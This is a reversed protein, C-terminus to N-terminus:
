SQSWIRSTEEMESLKVDNREACKKGKKAQQCEPSNEQEEWEKWDRKKSGEDLIKGNEFCSMLGGIGHMRARRKWQGKSSIVLCGGAPKCNVLENTCDQLPTRAELKLGSDELMNIPEQLESTVEGQGERKKCELIMM